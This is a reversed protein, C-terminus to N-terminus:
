TLKLIVLLAAGVGFLSYLIYELRKSSKHHQATLTNVDTILGNQLKEFTSNQKQLLENSTNLKEIKESNGEISQQLFQINSSTTNQREELLAVKSELVKIEQNILTTLNNLQGVNEKLFQETGSFNDEVTTNIEELRKENAKFQEKFNKEQTEFQKQLGDLINATEKVRNLQQEVLAHQQEIENLFVSAKKVSKIEQGLENIYTEMKEIQKLEGM